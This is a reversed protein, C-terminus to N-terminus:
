GACEASGLCARVNMMEVIKPHAHQISREDEYLESEKAPSAGVLWSFPGPLSHPGTVKPPRIRGALINVHKMADETDGEQIM